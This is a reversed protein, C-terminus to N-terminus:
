ASRAKSPDARMLFRWAYTLAPALVSVHTEGDFERCRFDLNRGDFRDLAAGILDYSAAIAQYIEEPLADGISGLREEGGLTLAIRTEREFGRALREELQDLLYRGAGFIGPSGIWYRDFLPAQRLMAYYTFLGGYSDGLIAASDGQVRYRRRIQDDLADMIFSLFDDAGGSEARKGALAVYAEAFWDDVSGPPTFDRVRLLGFEAPDPYAIGVVIAPGVGGDILDRACISSTMAALHFMLNGDLVYAVPWASETQEHYGDPLAVHIRFRQGIVPCYLDFSETAYVTSM